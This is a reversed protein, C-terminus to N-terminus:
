FVVFVVANFLDLSMRGLVATAANSRRRWKHDQYPSGPPHGSTAALRPLLNPLRCHVQRRRWDGPHHAASLAAHSRSLFVLTLPASCPPPPPFQMPAAPLHACVEVEMESGLRKSFSADPSHALSTVAGPCGNFCVMCVANLKVVSEAM